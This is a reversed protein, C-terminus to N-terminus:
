LKGLADGRELEWRDVVLRVQAQTQRANIRRPMAPWAANEPYWDLFQVQWGEQQVQQLRGDQRDYQAVGGTPRVLGRVWNQLEAIPITWGTAERLLQMADTGEHVGDQMGELRVVGGTWTGILSWRQNTIPALITICYAAGQQQWFIRASGGQRGQSIAVRGRFGWNSHAMLWHERSHQHGSAQEATVATPPSASPKLATCAVLLAWSAWLSPRLRSLQTM